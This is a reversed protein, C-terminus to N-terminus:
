THIYSQDFPKNFFVIKGKIKEPDTKALDTVNEILIVEGELLGETGVSGGLALINLKSITGNQTVMWGSEKNGREWHPVKIEQLYVNDFGYSELLQRGWIIAMKAEASGTIRAGIDKC